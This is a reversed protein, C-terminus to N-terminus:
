LTLVLKGVSDGSELARHAEAVAEFPFAAVPPPTIRGAELWGLLQAMIEGLLVKQDFFYSLNFALVSRSSNTMRLPDFRPTRLWTWALRPWSPRSSGKALMSHFGYVVLKGPRRLHDYSERLTSVGNADCIVAYGEPELREAEHWLDQTARDIVADAGLRLVTEVKHSAGVVGVVRCGAVKGLQVLAGGVGGAASHVLVSEGPRPRALEILGYCATLFPAPFAAAEQLTVGEPVPFVQDRSAVVESAYGGFLTVALVEDGVELDTVGAGLVAVRGAIEFGPTVPWGVQERSSTYLGMRVLTDAFNVGAAVVEIGVEGAGPSPSPHEEITLRRHGGPRHIVVRRM